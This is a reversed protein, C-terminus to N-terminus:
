VANKQVGCPKEVRPESKKSVESCAEVNATAAEFDIKCSHEEHRFNPGPVPCTGEATHLRWQM